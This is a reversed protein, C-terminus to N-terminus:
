GEDAEFINSHFKIFSLMLKFQSQYNQCKSWSLGIDKMQEMGALFTAQLYTGCQMWNEEKFNCALMFEDIEDSTLYLGYAPSDTLQILLCYEKESQSCDGLLIKIEQSGASVQCGWINNNLLNGDNTEFKIKESLLYEESILSKPDIFSCPIIGLNAFVHKIIEKLLIQNM